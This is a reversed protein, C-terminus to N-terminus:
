KWEQMKKFEELTVLDEPKKSVEQMILGLYYDEIDETEIISLLKELEDDNWNGRMKKVSFNQPQMGLREALYGNKYGSKDILKSINNKLQKYEQILELM